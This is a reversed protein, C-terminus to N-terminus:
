RQLADIPQIRSARLAPYLGALLGTVTGLLPAPLTTWPEVVATWERMAAIGSVTAIGLCTGVLGGLSGLVASEGLFQAAIHVGRAGLARRLGIEPVRELVSVFTTNAIGVAGIVLCIAALVLFLTNLDTSVAERLSRPDPPAIVKLRETADPRLAVAAQAAVAQAAGLRTEVTVRLPEGRGPLGWLQRVTQEPVLVSLMLEAHREVKSLVGVVTFPVGDIFVAMRGDLQDIGFRAAVASGVVAVREARRNHFDDFLRGAALEPHAVAVAGPSVSVVPLRDIRAPEAAPLRSVSRQGASWWVGAMVVGDVARLREIAGAPFPDGALEVDSATDEVTVETASLETFQKSIQGSTTATLGLVTVFTAVGLLTGLATLMSRGPRQLVGALAEACLDRVDM